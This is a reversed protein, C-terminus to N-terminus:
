GDAGPLAAHVPQQGAGGRGAGTHGGRDGGADGAASAAATGTYGGRGGGGGGGGRAGGRGRGYFTDARMTSPGNGDRASPTTHASAARWDLSAASATYPSPAAYMLPGRPIHGSGHSVQAAYHASAPPAVGLPIIPRSM